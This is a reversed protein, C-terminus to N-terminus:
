VGPMQDSSCISAQFRMTEVTWALSPQMKRWSHCVPRIDWGSRCGPPPRGTEAEATFGSPVAKVISPIFGWTVGRANSVSSIGPM